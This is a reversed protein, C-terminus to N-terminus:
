GPSGGDEDPCPARTPVGNPAVAKVGGFSLTGVETLAKIKKDATVDLDGTLRDSGYLQMAYGGVLAVTVREKKALDVVEQLAQALEAPSLFKKQASSSKPRAAASSKKSM